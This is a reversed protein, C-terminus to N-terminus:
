GGERINNRRDQEQMMRYIEMLTLWRTTTRDGRVVLVQPHFWIPKTVPGLDVRFTFDRYLSVLALLRGGNDMLVVTHQMDEYLFPEGEPIWTVFRADMHVANSASDVVDRIDEGLVYRRLDDFEELLAIDDPTHHAFVNFALKTVARFLDNFRIEATIEVRPKEVVEFQKTRMDEISAVFQSEEERLLARARPGVGEDAYALYGKNSRHMILAAEGPELWAVVKGHLHQRDFRNASHHRIFAILRSADKKPASLHIRVQAGTPTPTFRLMPYVEPRHGNRVAVPIKLGAADTILQEGGLKVDFAERPTNAVRRMSVLFNDVLHEDIGGTGTNCDKCVRRGVLNGGLARSVLHERSPPKPQKCYICIVTEDDSQM